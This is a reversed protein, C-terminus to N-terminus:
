LVNNEESHSSPPIPMLRPRALFVSVPNILLAPLCAISDSSKALSDLLHCLLFAVISFNLSDVGYISGRV